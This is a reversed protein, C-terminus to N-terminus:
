HTSKQLSTTSLSSFMFYSIQTASRMFWGRFFSSREGGLENYYDHICNLVTGNSNKMMLQCSSHAPHKSKTYKKKKKFIRHSNINKFGKLSDRWQFHWQITNQLSDTRHVQDGTNFQHLYSCFLFWGISKKWWCTHTHTHRIKFDQKRDTYCKAFEFCNIWTSSLLKM